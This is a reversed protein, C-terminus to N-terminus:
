SRIRIECEGGREIFPFSCDRRVSLHNTRQLCFMLHTVKSENSVTHPIPVRATFHRRYAACNFCREDKEQFKREAVGGKVSELYTVTEAHGEIAILYTSPHAVVCTRPGWTLDKSQVDKDLGVARIDMMMPSCNWPAEEEIEMELSM